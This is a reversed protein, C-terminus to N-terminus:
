EPSQWVYRRNVRCIYNTQSQWGNGGMLGLEDQDNGVMLEWLGIEDQHNEVM